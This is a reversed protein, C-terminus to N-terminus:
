SLFDDVFSQLLDAIKTSKHRGFGYVRKLELVPDQLALYDRITKLQPLESAIRSKQWSTLGPVETVKQDLCTDFTSILILERGCNTCFRQAETLRAAGCKSCPPLAFSLSKIQQPESVFKEIKRRIPHKARKLTLANALSQISGGTDNAILARSQLMLAGHPIFRRYIRTPTGHKIEGGDYVLGAEVLLQFMRQVMPSIDDINIGVTLQLLTPHNNWEKIAEVMGNVVLEGVGILEKFKPVKTALSRFEAIRGALHEEVVGNYRRQQSSEGSELFSQLMTLYARPIGFAAFRFLTQLDEPISTFNPIRVRAIEDMDKEYDQAEVSLWVFTSTSDQGSHFRSSYETTGPYVSAKPAITTSKLSRVIDLMELLYPPTLTLAADDLLLITRHKGVVSCAADIIQQVRALSISRAVESEVQTLPQNRELCTVLNELTTKPLDFSNAFQDVEALNQKFLLSNYTALIILSLTWAHFEDPPSTRSILLPELRYYKNFSVYVAFLQSSDQQCSLWAHRMMHTKGCGRPGVITKLATNLLAKRVARFLNSQDATESFLKEAPIYDARQEISTDLSQSQSFLDSM